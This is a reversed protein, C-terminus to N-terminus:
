TNIIEMHLITREIEDFQATPNIEIYMVDVVRASGGSNLTVTEVSGFLARFSADLTSTSQYEVFIAGFDGNPTLVRNPDAQLRDEGFVIGEPANPKSLLLITGLSPSVLSFENGITATLTFEIVQVPQGKTKTEWKSENIISRSFVSGFTPDTTLTARMLTSLSYILKEANVQKDKANAVIVIKYDVTIQSPTSTTSVGYPYSTQQLSDAATVYCYPMGNVDPNNKVMGAPNGFQVSRLLGTTAGSDFITNDAEITDVITQINAGHDVTVM